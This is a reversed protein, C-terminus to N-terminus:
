RFYRFTILLFVVYIVVMLMGEFRSIKRGSGTFVFIFLLLNAIIVMGLDILSIKHFPLPTILACVGLVLFINFICSGIANGIAIDINKKYLAVLSTVLEPLSTASAVITLGITSQSIGLWEAIEVSGSVIWKGGWYLGAIGLIILFVSRAHSLSKFGNDEPIYIRKNVKYSYFLFGAFFLILIIGDWFGLISQKGTIFLSDYILVGLLITAFLSIPIDIFTTNRRIYIPHIISTIGIIILINILNSGLVNAIALDTNKDASAFINVILEPLSTGSSVITLGIVIGSINMRHGISSAGDVLWNAGLVLIVFGLFFLFIDM